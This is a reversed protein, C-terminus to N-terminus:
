AEQKKRYLMRFRSYAAPIGLFGIEGRHPRVANFDQVRPTMYEVQKGAVYVCDRGACCKTAFFEAEVFPHCMSQAHKASWSPCAFQLSTQRWSPCSADSASASRAAQGPKTIISLTGPIWANM